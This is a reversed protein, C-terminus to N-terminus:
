FMIEKIYDLGACLGQATVDVGAGPGELTMAKGNWARPYISVVNDTGTARAIKDNISIGKFGIEYIGDNFNLEAVYRLVHGDRKVEEIRKKFQEDLICVGKMFEEVSVNMLEKPTIKEVKVDNMEIPVGATRGIIVAKRASDIGDIDIRPDSETYLKNKAEKLVVSFDVGKENNITNNGDVILPLPNMGCSIYGMTGSPSAKVENIGDATKAFERVRTLVGLNSSVTTRNDIMKRKEKKREFLERYKEYPVESYPVKNSGVVNIGNEIASFIIHYSQATSTDILIDPKNKGNFTEEINDFFKVKGRYDRLRGEKEKLAKVEWIEKKSFGENKAIVGSTDAFSIYTYEPNSVTQRILERAVNGLGFVALKM